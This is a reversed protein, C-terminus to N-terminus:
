ENTEMFDGYECEYAYGARVISDVEAPTLSTSSNKIVEVVYEVLEEENIYVQDHGQEEAIDCQKDYFTYMEDLVKEIDEQQINEYGQAKLEKQIFVLEDSENENLFNELIPTSM